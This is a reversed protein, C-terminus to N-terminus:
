QGIQTLCVIVGNSASVKKTTSDFTFVHNSDNITNHIYSKGNSFQGIFSDMTAGGTISYGVVIYIGDLGDSTWASSDDTIFKTELDVVKGNLAELETRLNKIEEVDITTGLEDFFGTGSEPIIWAINTGKTYLKGNITLSDGTPYINFVQGNKLDDLAVVVDNDITIETTTDPDDVALINGSYKYVSSVEGELNTVRQKLGPNVATGDGDLTENITAIADANDAVDKVLGNTDDGVTTQLASVDDKIDAIDLFLGTPEVDPDSGPTGVKTELSTTRDVLGTTPTDVTTQLASVDDKIDAIDHFLGTAPEPSVAPEGVKNELSTTRDVLGTTPTDVTTELSEIRETLTSGGGGQGIEAELNAIDSENEKVRDLLGDYHKAPDESNDDWGDKVYGELTNIKSALSVVGPAPSTTVGAQDAVAQIRTVVDYMGPPLPVIGDYKYNYELPDIGVFRAVNDVAYANFKFYNKWDAISLTKIGANDTAMQYVLVRFYRETEDTIAGIPIDSPEQIETAM